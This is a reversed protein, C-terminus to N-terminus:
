KEARKKGKGSGDGGEHIERKGDGHGGQGCWGERKLLNQTGRPKTNAKGMLNGAFLNKTSVLGNRERGAKGRCESLNLKSGDKGSKGAITSEV